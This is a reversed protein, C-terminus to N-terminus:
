AAWKAQVLVPFTDAGYPMILVSFNPGFWERARNFVEEVRTVPEIGIARVTEEPLSSLLFYKIGRARDRAFFYAKHGGIKFGEKAMIERIGNLDWARRAWDAFVPHGIGDRCEAVLLIIGGDKTALSANFVAKHAQYLDIDKPYGGPCTVVVDAQESIRAQFLENWRHTGARHAEFPDGVFFGLPTSDGSLVADVIAWLGVMNAAERMERHIPNQEYVCAYAQPDFIKKHNQQITDLSAVGPLIMKPGGSYGAFYHMGIHGISIIRDAEALIPNVEVMTGFSTVGISLQPGEANHVEVQFYDAFTGLIRAIEDPRPPRHAGTAILVTVNAPSVKRSLHAWVAELIQAVPVRRTHDPVIFLIRDRRTILQELPAPFGYPSVWAQEFVEEFTLNPININPQLIAMLNRKPVAIEVRETGYLLQCKVTECM